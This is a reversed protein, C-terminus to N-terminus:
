PTALSARGAETLLDRDHVVAPPAPLLLWASFPAASASTTTTSSTSAVIAMGSAALAEVLRREGSRANGAVCATFAIGHSCSPPLSAV